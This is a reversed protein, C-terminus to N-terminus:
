DLRECQITVTTKLRGTIDVGCCAESLEQVFVNPDSKCSTIKYGDACFVNMFYGGRGFHTSICDNADFYGQDGEVSWATKTLIRSGEGGIQIVSAAYAKPGWEKFSKKPIFGGSQIWQSCEIPSMVQIGPSTKLIDKKKLIGEDDTVFIDRKNIVHGVLHDVDNIKNKYRKDDKSLGPFIIKQLENSLKIMAEGALVDGGDLKTVDLRAVTGVIPFFDIKRMMEQKRSLDKDNDLDTEV